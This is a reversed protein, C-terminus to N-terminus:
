PKEQHKQKHYRLSGASHFEAMCDVVKCVLKQHGHHKRMHNNLDEGSNFASGCHGVKCKFPKEGRHLSRKHKLIGSASKFEKQCGEEGCVMRSVLSSKAKLQDMKRIVMKNGNMHLSWRDGSGKLFVKSVKSETRASKGDQLDKLYKGNRRKNRVKVKAQQVGKEDYNEVSKTRAVDGEQAQTREVRNLKVRVQSNDLLKRKNAMDLKRRTNLIEQKLKHQLGEAHTVRLRLEDLEHQVKVNHQELKESRYREEEVEARHDLIEQELGKCRYREEEVEKKHVMIEQELMKSRDMEKELDKKLVQEGFSEVVLWLEQNQRVGYFSLSRDEEMMKGLLHWGYLGLFMEERDYRDLWTWALSVRDKVMSITDSSSVLFSTSCNTGAKVYILFLSSKLLLQNDYKRRRNVDMLVEVANGIVKSAENAENSSSNKDPHLKLILKRHAKKIQVKTASRSVGLKEYLDGPGLVRVMDEDQEEPRMMGIAQFNFQVSQFVLTKDNPRKM